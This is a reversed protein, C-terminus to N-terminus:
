RGEGDGEEGEGDLTIVVPGGFAGLPVSLESLKVRQITCPLRGAALRDEVVPAAAQPTVWGEKERQEQSTSSSIIISPDRGMLADLAAFRGNGGVMAARYALLFALLTAAGLLAYSRVGGAAWLSLAPSLSFRLPKAPPQQKSQYRQKHQQYREEISMMFSPAAAVAAAAAAAATREQEAMAALRAASKAMWARSDPYRGNDEEEEKRAAAAANPSSQKRRRLGLGKFPSKLKFPSKFPSKGMTRTGTHTLTHLHQQQTLTPDFRRLITYYIVSRVWDLKIRRALLWYWFLLGM